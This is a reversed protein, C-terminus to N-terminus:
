MYQIDKERKDKKSIGKGLKEAVTGYFKTIEPTISARVSELAKDFHEKNVKDAKDNERISLMAAERCLSEIDAGSYGETKKSLYYSFIDRDSVNDLNISKIKLENDQEKPAADQIDAEMVGPKEYALKKKKALESKIYEKFDKKPKKSTDGRLEKEIEEIDKNRIKIPINKTHIKFIEFRANFDPSPILVLRDFRGPRLLSQDIIDPRNTAGVVVVGEMSEMGDISTLLQNVVSDTVHSGTDTGRMPAISDLEDLFVITPAVQRAKKFLERVAKESEGVWKSMVEPGKISIFNASSESAVAKALLTKGTGPAGYLLVGRPAKIGMRDFVEPRTLPWEIAERLQQKAQELGGIDEWSVKPVEVLFERMASPEIGRHADKFDDMTVEMKELVETPIPEELDIEPLYRRLANMASERALSALDAGVYGYTIDAIKNLIIEKFVKTLTEDPSKHMSDIRNKINKEIAPDEEIEHKNLPLLNAIEESLINIIEEFIEKPIRGTTDKFKKKLFDSLVTKSDKKKEGSIISLIKSVESSLEKTTNVLFDILLEDNIQEGYSDLLNTDVPMGRTHIQLIEKRGDRDPADIKIERDFRGPRRLAPDIVDPLNTAGIVILKGRGKLGDMLTLMQSVVRREVEGHVESRKPAIADIEDIFIISPANKEAEEFIKRLNEESQGYFKSNHLFFYSGGLFSDDDVTFDYLDQEGAFDLSEIREWGIDDRMLLNYETEISDNLINNKEALKYLVDLAHKTTNGAKYVYYDMNRYEKYSLKDKIENVLVSPYPLDQFDKIRKVKRIKNLKETKKRTSSGIDLFKLRGEYGRISLEYVSGKPTKHLNLKSSIGLKIQILSQLDNVFERSKSFLKPTPYDNTMAVTGDGDFYGRIFSRIEDKTLKYFYGPITLKKDFVFGIHELFMVLTKSYTVLRCDHKNTKTIGFLSKLLFRFRNILVSDNNAFTIGDGKKSINGDSVLLGLFEMLDPTTKEPLKVLNSRSLNRSNIVYKDDIKKLNPIKEPNLKYSKEDTEINNIRAVYDGSKLNEVCKWKLAGKDYVLFPQNHSTKIKSGDSIKVSYTPAKLKTVHTIKSKKIENDKFSFTSVPEELEITVSNNGKIERGNKNFVDKAKVHGKPNTFIKTDGDVCMVEPGNITYFNAGSENAVAKAILTKGTGPPGHLLVGKPPDIGLRDFLEPHKLPLEIMERVKSIEEHLGGIDEYSVRPGEEESVKAAEEKVKIITNETISVIGTPNTNMILFPLSSGFLAIGPIIVNDGKTLPRKLLGKKILNDIGSGFQIQQGKSILPALAVNKAENVDAKRIKVRDGLGAGSNKRSLNDIRILGKGEDTPHARWVVAATKKSGEIEIVDGISLDLKLRTQHDIRARGYGVDQQFAESIKLIAEKDTM